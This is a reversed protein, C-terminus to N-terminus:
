ESRYDSPKILGGRSLATVYNTSRIYVKQLEEKSLSKCTYYATEAEAVYQHLISYKEELSKGKMSRRVGQWRENKVAELTSKMQLKGFYLNAWNM